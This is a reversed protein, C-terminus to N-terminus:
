SLANLITSTLEATCGHTVRFRVVGEVGEFRYARPGEVARVFKLPVSVYRQHLVNTGADDSEDGARDGDKATQENEVRVDTPLVYAGPRAADYGEESDRVQDCRGSVHNSGGIIDVFVPIPLVPIWIIRAIRKVCYALNM